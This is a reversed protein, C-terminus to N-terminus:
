GERESGYYTSYYAPLKVDNLVVGALNRNVRRLRQLALELAEPRTLGSRVVFLVADAAAAIITSDSVINLPPTDLVVLDYGSEMAEFVEDFRGPIHLAEVAEDPSTSGATLVHLVGGRVPVVRVAEELSDTGFLVDGFGIQRLPFGFVRSVRGARLDADVLLTRAGGSAWTQALNCATFTKGEGQESSTVALSRPEQEGDWQIRSLKLDAALTRFAEVAPQSGAIRAKSQVSPLMGIVPAGAALEVQQRDRIRVDTLERVFALFVGFGLGLITGLLLNLRVSPAAPELPLQPTDIPRIGPLSVGEALEAERLQAELMGYVEQLQQVKRDRRLYEIQQRPLAALRDSGRQLTEDYSEIQSDLAARYSTALSLLQNEIEAIRQDIAALEANEPSRMVSLESRQNDLEILSAVLETVALNQLFTPFNALERYRAAGSSGREIRELYAVLADRDAELIERQARLQALSRIEEEARTGLAVAGYRRAYDALSDEAGTLRERIQETADTLFERANAAETTQLEGRLELYSNSIDACIDRALEPDPALCTLQILDAKSSVRSSKVMELVNEVGRDFDTVELLIEPSPAAPAVFRIDTFAISDGARGRALEGDASLDRVTTVQDRSTQILYNGKITERGADFGELVADPRVARGDVEAEVHLDLADVSPAVV